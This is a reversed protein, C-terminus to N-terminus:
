LLGKATAIINEKPVFGWYKSDWSKDHTGIVFYREAPIIGNFVFHNLEKESSDKLFAKGIKIDNCFYEFNENVNLYDGPMCSVIKVFQENHMYSYVNEGPYKFVVLDNKNFNLEKKKVLFVYYPLSPTFSFGIGYFQRVNYITLIFCLIVILILHTNKM